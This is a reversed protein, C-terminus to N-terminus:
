RWLTYASKVVVEVCYYRLSSACVGASMCVCALFCRRIAANHCGKGWEGERGEERGGDM